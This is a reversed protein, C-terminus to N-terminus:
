KCHIRKSAFIRSVIGLLVPFFLNSQNTHVLGPDIQKTLARGWRIESQSTSRDNTHNLSLQTETLDLSSHTLDRSLGSKKKKLVVHGYRREIKQGFHESIVHLPIKGFFQNATGSLNHHKLIHCTVDQLHTVPLKLVHLSCVSLVKVWLSLIQINRCPDSPESATLFKTKHMVSGYTHCLSSMFVFPCLIGCYLAWMCKLVSQKKM